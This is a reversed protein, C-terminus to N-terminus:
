EALKGWSVGWNQIFWYPQGDILGDGGRGGGVGEIGDCGSEGHARICSTAWREAGWIARLGPDWSVLAPLRNVM